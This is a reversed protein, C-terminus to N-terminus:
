FRYNKANLVQPEKLKTWDPFLYYKIGTIAGPLTVARILLIILLLFPTTATFYM